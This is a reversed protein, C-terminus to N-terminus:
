WSYRLGLLHMSVLPILPRNSLCQYDLNKSFVNRESTITCKSVEKMHMDAIYIHMPLAHVHVHILHAHERVRTYNYAQAHM